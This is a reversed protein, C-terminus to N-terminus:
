GNKNDEMKKDIYDLLERFCNKCLCYDLYGVTVIQWSKKFEPNDKSIVEECIDCAVKM